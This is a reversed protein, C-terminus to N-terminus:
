AVAKGIDSRMKHKIVSVTSTAIGFDAAIDAHRDGNCAREYIAQKQEPSLRRLKKGVPRGRKVKASIPPSYRVWESAETESAERLIDNLSRWEGM